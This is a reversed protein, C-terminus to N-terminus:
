ILRFTMCIFWLIITAMFFRIGINYCKVKKSCIMSNTHIQEELDEIIEQESMSNIRVKYDQLKMTTVSGFFFISQANNVNKIRSIIALIFYLISLFSVIYLSCVLIVGIIEGGNLEELKSIGSVIKFSNPLGTGFVFGIVIGALALAYSVKDDINKIWTNTIELTKYADEKTFIIQTNSEQQNDEDM